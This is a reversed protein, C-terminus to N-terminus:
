RKNEEEEPLEVEVMVKGAAAAELSAPVPQGEADLEVNFITAFKPAVQLHQGFLELVDEKDEYAQAFTEITKGRLVIKVPAGGRLNRWWTRHAHSLVSLVDGDRVYNVPTTYQQGTKRGTFTILMIDNSAVGHWPSRLMWKILLNGIILSLKKQKAM